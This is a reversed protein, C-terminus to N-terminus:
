SLRNNISYEPIRTRANSQKDSVVKQFVKLYGHVMKDWSYNQELFEQMEAQHYLHTEDQLCQEIQEVWSEVRDAEVLFGNKGHQVASTIGELDSAIVRTNHVNAELAVLGFGEMDGKVKQNPMIFLDALSLIHNKTQHNASQIWIFDEPQNDALAQLEHHETSLGFFLAVQTRLKKPLCALLNEKTKSYNPHPGILVFLCNDLSPLVQKVFWNVGKRKVPRGISVLLQKDKSKESILQVLAKQVLTQDITERSVGNCVTHVKDPSFGRELAALRTAESVTIIADFRQVIKLLFKQYFRNPFVLDLGHYTMVLPRRTFLKLWAGLLASIGDNFHILQINRHRRLLLPIRWYLSIFFWILSSSNDYLITHVTSFKSAGTILEYSQKQMGGIAPPYKYSIFLVEM